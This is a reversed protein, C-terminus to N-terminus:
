SREFLFPTIRSFLIIINSNLLSMNVTIITNTAKVM